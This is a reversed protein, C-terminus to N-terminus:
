SWNIFEIRLRHLSFIVIRSWFHFHIQVNFGKQLYRLVFPATPQPLAGGERQESHGQLKLLSLLVQTGDASEARVFLYKRYRHLESISGLHCSSGVRWRTESM